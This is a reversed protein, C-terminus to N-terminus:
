LEGDGEREEGTQIALSPVPRAGAAAGPAPRPRRRLLYLVGATPVEAATWVLRLLVAAWVAYLRGDDAGCLHALEPTLFLTLFFERVGLGGPVIVILFGAVYATSLYAAILGVTRPGWAPPKPMIAHLVAVLSAGLLLWGVATLALGQLLAPWQLRPLPAADRQRFPRAIRRMLRNFVPPAVAVALPLLLVVAFLALLEGSLALAEPVDLTLLQKLTGADRTSDVDPGLLAFLVAALLVGAAMSTLVEYTSTLAAVGVRVGEARALGTRLLLAWAKGPSYKGLHGVYYARLMGLFPPRQEFARLLRHWFLASCGLGLLYLLGAAALWGLAFPRDELGLQELKQLDRAFQRGIALLIAFTLVGKLVPWLRKWRDHM